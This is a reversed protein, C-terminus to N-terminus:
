RMTFAHSKIQRLAKMFCRYHVINTKGYDDAQVFIKAAARPLKFDSMTALLRTLEPAPLIFKSLLLQRAFKILRRPSKASKCIKAIDKVSPVSITTVSVNDSKPEQREQDEQSTSDTNLPTDLSKTHSQKQDSFTEILYRSPIRNQLSKAKIYDMVISVYSPAKCDTLLSLIDNLVVVINNNDDKNFRREVM